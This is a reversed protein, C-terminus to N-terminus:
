NTANRKSSQNGLFRHALADMVKVSEAWSADEDPLKWASTQVIVVERKPNVYIMQGYIGMAIFAGETNAPVWWQYAYGLNGNAASPELFPADPRTSEKMWTESVVREGNLKGGSMAM